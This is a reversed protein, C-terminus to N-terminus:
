KQSGKKQKNFISCNALFSLILLIFCLLDVFGNKNKKNAPNIIAKAIQETIKDPEEFKSEELIESSVESSIIESPSIQESQSINESSNQENGGNSTNTGSTDSTNPNVSNTDSNTDGCGAVVIALLSLTAFVKLFKNKMM